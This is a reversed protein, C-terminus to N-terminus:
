KSTESLRHARVAQATRLQEASPAIEWDDSPNISHSDRQLVPDINEFGQDQRVDAGRGLLRWARKLVGAIHSLGVGLRVVILSQSVGGRVKSGQEASQTNLAVQRRIVSTEAAEYGERFGKRYAAVRRATERAEEPALFAPESM